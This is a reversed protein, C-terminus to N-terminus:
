GVLRLTGPRELAAGYLRKFESEFLTFMAYLQQETIGLRKLHYEIMERLLRPPEPSLDLEAPERTRFGYMSMQKWLATAKKETITHLDKARKLLAAMSVRWVRKLMSFTSLDAGILMPRIDREPMLLESAFRDAEREMDASPTWHMILHGLEHAMTFRVRDTPAASNMFIMPPMGQQRMGVADIGSAGFDCPVILVGARELLEVLNPIPGRPLAWQERVSQAIQEANGEFQDIDLQPVKLVAKVDTQMLLKSINQIRLAIDAHIRGLTTQSLHKRKRHFWSPLTNMYGPQFFFDRPYNLERALRALLDDPPVFFGHEIKSLRGQTTEVAHALDTQTLGRSMRALTLMEPNFPHSM